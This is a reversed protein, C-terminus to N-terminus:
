IHYRVYNEMLWKNRETMYKLGGMNLNVYEGRVWGIVGDDMRIKVWHEFGHGWDRPSEEEIIAIMTADIHTKFPLSLLIEGSVDPIDYILTETDTGVEVMMEQIEVVTFVEDNITLFELIVNHINLRDMIEIAEDYTQPIGFALSKSLPEDFQNDRKLLALENLLLDFENTLRLIEENLTTVTQNLENITIENEKITDEYSSYNTDKATCGILLFSTIVFFVSTIKM